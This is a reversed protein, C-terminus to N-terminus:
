SCAALAKRGLKTDSDRLGLLIGSSENNKAYLSAAKVGNSRLVHRMKNVRGNQHLRAAKGNKARKGTRRPLNKQKKHQQPPM